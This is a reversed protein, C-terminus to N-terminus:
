SGPLNILRFRLRPACVRDILSTVTRGPPRVPLVAVTAACVCVCVRLAFLIKVSCCKSIASYSSIMCLLYTYVSVAENRALLYAYVFVFVEVNEFTVHRMRGSKDLYKTQKKHFAYERLGSIGTKLHIYKSVLIYKSIDM